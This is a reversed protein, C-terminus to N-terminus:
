HLVLGLHSLNEIWLLNEGNLKIPPPLNIKRNRGSFLICKTKSRAPVPDTSFVLNYANAYDECVKVMEQLCYRYPAVLFLDNTLLAAGMWVGEVHCGLSKKQLATLIGDIYALFLFPLLVSGQRTGNTLKFSNSNRGGGWNQGM